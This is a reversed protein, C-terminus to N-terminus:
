PGGIIGAAAIIPKLSHFNMTQTEEGIGIKQVNHPYKLRYDIRAPHNLRDEIREGFYGKIYKGVSADFQVIDGRKFEGVADFAATYNIWMHDALLKGKLDRVFKLLITKGAGRHSRFIGYQWFTAMFRLRRGELGELYM